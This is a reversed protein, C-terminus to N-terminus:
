RSFGVLRWLVPCAMQRGGRIILCSNLLILRGAKTPEPTCSSNYIVHCTDSSLMCSVPRQAPDAVFMVPPAIMLLIDLLIDLSLISFAKSCSLVMELSSWAFTLAIAPMTFVGRLKM